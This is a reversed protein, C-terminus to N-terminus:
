AIHLAPFEGYFIVSRRKGSPLPLLITNDSDLLRKLIRNRSKRSNFVDAEMCCAASIRPDMGHPLHRMNVHGLIEIGLFHAIRGIVMHSLKRNGDKLRFFDAIIKLGAVAGKLAMIAVTNRVVAERWQNRIVEASPVYLTIKIDLRHLIGRFMKKTMM